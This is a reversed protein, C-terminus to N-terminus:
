KTGERGYQKKSIGVIAGIQPWGKDSHKVQVHIYRGELPGVKPDPKPLEDGADWATFEAKTLLGDMLKRFNSKEGTATRSLAELEIPDGDDYLPSGDEEDALTVQFHYRQGDDPKGFNDREVAWDDHEVLKLDNFIALALGDEVEPAGAGATPKPLAIPM